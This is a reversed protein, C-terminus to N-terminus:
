CAGPWFAKETFHTKANHFEARLEHRPQSYFASKNTLPSVMNPMNYYQLRLFTMEMDPYSELVGSFAAEVLEMVEAIDGM